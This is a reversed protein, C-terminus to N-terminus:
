VSAREPRSDHESVDLEADENLKSSSLEGPRAFLYGQGSPCESAQLMRLQEETEIGEAIIKLGLNSAMTIITRVVEIGDQNQALRKIFTRDIKLTDIPLAQLAGLSSHGTGFDDMMLEVGLEKIRQLTDLAMEAHEIIATETIELRLRHAPFGTADLIRQVQNPLSRDTLQKRSVNVSLHPRGESDAEGYWEQMERCAQELVWSGLQVILGTDEMVGIFQGPLVMGKKPHNWRVLAEFGETEGTTLSVIPQYELTFEDRELAQRLETELRLRAAFKERMSTDFVAWGKNESKAQYMATDADRLLEESKAYGKTDLVAGLSASPYLDHGDVVFPEALKELIRNITIFAGDPLDIRELIVVFEDGGMRAVTDSARVCTQLRAAVEVLMLDGVHHGLTDNVLKFRDLDMFLIAFDLNGRDQHELARTLRDTLLRRNPLGTLPDFVGRGSMDTMSGAMRVVRGSQDRISAGRALVWIYKGNKHLMRFEQEFHKLQGRFHAVMAEKVRGIDDEHILRWSADAVPKVEDDDYGLIEKWRPSYYVEGSTHDWDYLGDSSGAMSLAFRQRSEELEAEKKRAQARLARWERQARRRIDTAAVAMLSAIALSALRDAHIPDPNGINSALTYTFAVLATAAVWARSYMVLGTGLVALPMATRAIGSTTYTAEISIAGLLVTALIFTLPHAWNAKLDFITTAGAVSAFLLATTARTLNLLVPADPGQLFGQLMLFSYLLSLALAAPRVAGLVRQNTTGGSYLGTKIMGEGM